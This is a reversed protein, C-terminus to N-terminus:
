LDHLFRVKISDVFTFAAVIANVRAEDPKYFWRDLSFFPYITHWMEVETHLDSLAQLMADPKLDYKKVLRQCEEFMDVYAKQESKSEYYHKTYNKLGELGIFISDCVNEM